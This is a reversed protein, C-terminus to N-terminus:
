SAGVLVDLRPLAGPMWVGLQSILAQARRQLEEREALTLYPLLQAAFRKLREIRVIAEAISFPSAEWAPGYGRRSAMELDWDSLPAPALEEAKARVDDSSAVQRYGAVFGQQKEPPLFSLDSTRSYAWQSLVFDWASWDPQDAHYGLFVRTAWDVFPGAEVPGLRQTFLDVVSPIIMPNAEYARRGELIADRLRQQFAYKDKTPVGM